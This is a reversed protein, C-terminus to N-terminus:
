QGVAKKNAERVRALNAHFLKTLAKRDEESLSAQAEEKLALIEKLSQAENLRVEMKARASVPAGGADYDVSTSAPPEPPKAQGVPLTLRIPKPALPEEPSPPAPPSSSAARRQQPQPKPAAARSSVRQPQPAGAPEHEPDDGTPILLTKTLVYKTAGALAKYAAKDGSDTGQGIMPVPLVEGTIGDVFNFEIRLTCLKETGGNRRPVDTWHEVIKAPYVIINRTGLEIRVADVIDAELAYNYGHFDNRGRKPIRQVACMVEALKTILGKPTPPQAAAPETAPTTAAPANQQETSGDM